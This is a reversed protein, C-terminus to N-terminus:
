PSGLRGLGRAHPQICGKIERDATVPRMCNLRSGVWDWPLRRSNPRVVATTTLLTAVEAVTWGTACPSAGAHQQGCHLGWASSGPAGARHQRRCGAAEAPAQRGWQMLTCSSSRSSSNCQQKLLMRQRVRGCWAETPVVASNCSADLPSGQQQLHRQGGVAHHGKPQQVGTQHLSRTGLDGNLLLGDECGLTPLISDPATACLRQIGATPVSALGAHLFRPTLHPTSPKDRM